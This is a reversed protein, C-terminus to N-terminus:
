CLHGEIWLEVIRRLLGQGIAGCHPCRAEWACAFRGRGRYPIRYPVMLM